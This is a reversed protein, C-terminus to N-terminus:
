LFKQGVEDMYISAYPPAFTTGIAAGSKQQYAKGNFELINDNLLFEAMKM